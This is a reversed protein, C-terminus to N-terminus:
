VRSECLNFPGFGVDLIDVGSDAGEELRVRITQGGLEIVLACLFDPADCDIGNGALNFAHRSIGNMIQSSGQILHQRCIKPVRDDMRGCGNHLAQLKGGNLMEVFKFTNQLSQFFMEGPRDYLEKILCFRVFAPLARRKPGDILEIIPIFVACEQFRDLETEGCGFVSLYSGGVTKNKAQAGSAPFVKDGGGLGFRACPVQMLGVFSQLRDKAKDHGRHFVPEEFECGRVIIHFDECGCRPRLHVSINLRGEIYGEAINLSKFSLGDNLRQLRHALSHEDNEIFKPSREELAGAQRECM